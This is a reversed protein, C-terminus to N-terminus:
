SLESDSQGLQNKLTLRISEWRVIPDLDVPVAHVFSARTISGVIEFSGSQKQVMLLRWGASKSVSFENRSLYCTFNPGPRSSTKVELFLMSSLDEPNPTVIDYGLSDDKLSVHVIADHFETPIQSKLYEMVFNEGELGLAVLAQQDFKRGLRGAYDLTEFSEWAEKDGEMLQESLWEPIQTPRVVVLFRGEIQISNKRVLWELTSMWDSYTLGPEVQM